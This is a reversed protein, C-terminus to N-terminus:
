EVEEYFVEIILRYLAEEDVYFEEYEEGMVTEGELMHFCDGGIRYDLAQTALYVAEDATVDTTMMPLVAQYLKLVISLDEKAKAKAAQIFGTLYQKQRELRKDASGFEGTDRYKVYWFASKGELHVKAGEALLRDAKTLDELVVVDVGGVADNLEPIASMNVAAYGHIPLGYMLRTVADVQYKCSEEVGDGFGHQTAIQGEVTKVFDGKEDYVEIDTMTNRNIGLIQIEKPHPNLVALFLADAQGGDTGEAVAAAKSDRDIGMILFTLIDKNYAYTKGQYRVWDEQWIEGEEEPIPEWLPLAVLDPGGSSANQMLRRRGAERLLFFASVSLVLTAALFFVIKGWNRKKRRKRRKRRYKKEM